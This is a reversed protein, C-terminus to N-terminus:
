RELEVPVLVGGSREGRRLDGLAGEIVIWEGDRLISFKRQQPSPSQFVAAATLPREIAIVDGSRFPGSAGASEEPILWRMAEIPRPELIVDSDRTITLPMWLDPESPWRVAYEGDVVGYYSFVSDTVQDAFRASRVPLETFYLAPSRARGPAPHITVSARRPIHIKIVNLGSHVIATGEAWPSTAWNGGQVTWRIEGPSVLVKTFESGLFSHALFRGTGDQISINSPRVNAPLEAPDNEDIVEFVLEAPATFMLTLPEGTFPTIMSGFDISHVSLKVNGDGSDVVSQAFEGLRLSLTGDDLTEKKLRLPVQEHKLHWVLRLNADIPEGSPDLIRLPIGETAPPPLSLSVDTIARDVWVSTLSAIPQNPHSIGIAYLGPPIQGWTVLAKSNGNEDVVISSSIISRLDGRNDFVTADLDGIQDIAALYGVMGTDPEVDIVELEISGSWPLSVLLPRDVRDEKIPVKVAERLGDVEIFLPWYEGFMRQDGISVVQGPRWPHRASVDEIIAEEPSSGDPYRLDFLVDYEREAIISVFPPVAEAVVQAPLGKVTDIKLPTASDVIGIQYIGEPVGNFRFSGFADTTARGLVAPTTGDDRVLEVTVGAEVEFLDMGVFGEISGVAAGSPASLEVTSPASPVSSTPKPKREDSPASIESLERPPDISRAPSSTGWRALGGILLGLCLAILPARM